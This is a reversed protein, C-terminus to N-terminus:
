NSRPNAANNQLEKQLTEILQLTMNNTEALMAERAPYPMIFNYTVFCGLIFGFFLKLM